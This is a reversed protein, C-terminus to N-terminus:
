TQPTLLAELVLDIKTRSSYTDEAFRHAVFGDPDIVFIAPHPVGFAPSGSRYRENLLDFARIVESEPDSLLTYSINRRGAFRKLDDVSDYTLIAVKYGLSNFEEVRASWDLAEAKCFVCWSLSRSFLLVLGNEGTITQFDQRTGSQDHTARTHPIPDGVQPGSDLAYREGAPATAPQLLVTFLAAGLTSRVARISFM